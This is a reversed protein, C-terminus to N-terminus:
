ACAMTDAILVALAELSRSAKGIGRKTRHDSEIATRLLQAFRDPEIRRAADLLRDQGRGWLKLERSVAAAPMGQRLLRSGAHLKRLLDVMSWTLLQEPQQSVMMLERLKAVADGPAGSVLASQISWAQEERSLGVMALIEDPGITGGEGVYAALKGLEADLRALVPGIREVLLTAAEPTITAGHAKACRRECFRAAAAANPAECKIVAGGVAAIAKDLKGPRWTEARLLLTASDVPTEAYRELLQRATRPPPPGGRPRRKPATPRPAPDDEDKVALFKDANDLVVLKHSQLLGYSRLEDLVVAADTVAGDYTFREIDGHQAELTEVLTATHAGILYRDAGHLVVIRMSADPAAPAARAM